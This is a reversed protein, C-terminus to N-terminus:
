VKWNKDYKLFNTNLKQRNEHALPKLVKLSFRIQLVTFRKSSFSATNAEFVSLISELHCPLISSNQKKKVAKRHIKQLRKSRKQIPHQFREFTFSM